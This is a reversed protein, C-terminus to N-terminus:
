LYLPNWTVIIASFTCFLCSKKSQISFNFFPIETGCGPITLGVTLTPNVGIRREPRAAYTLSTMGSTHWFPAPVVPVPRYSLPMFVLVQWCCLLQGLRTLRGRLLSRPLCM